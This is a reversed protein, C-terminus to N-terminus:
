PRPSESHDEEEGFSATDSDFAYTGSLSESRDLDDTDFIDVALGEDTRKIHLDFNEIQLWIAENRPLNHVQYEHEERQEIEIKETM